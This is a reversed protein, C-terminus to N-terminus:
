NDEPFQIQQAQKEFKKNIQLKLNADAVLLEEIANLFETKDINDLNALNQMRLLNTELVTLRSRIAPSAVAEPQEAKLESIFTKMRENEVKFFSFDAAKLYEIHLQLDQYKAWELVAEASETGLVFDTYDLKEIDQATVVSSKEPDDLRVTDNKPGSQCGMFILGGLLLVYKM